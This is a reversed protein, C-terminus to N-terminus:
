CLILIMFLVSIGLTALVLVAARAREHPCPGHLPRTCGCARLRLPMAAPDYCPPPPRAHNPAFHGSDLTM